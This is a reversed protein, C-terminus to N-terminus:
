SIRFAEGPPEGIGHSDLQACAVVVRENELSKHLLRGADGDVKATAM